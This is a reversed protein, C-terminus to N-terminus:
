LLYHKSLEKNLIGQNLINPSHLYAAPVSWGVPRQMKDLVTTCTLLELKILTLPRLAQQTLQLRPTMARM